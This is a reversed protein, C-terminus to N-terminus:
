ETERPSSDNSSDETEIESNGQVFRRLRDTHRYLDEITDLRITPIGSAGLKIFEPRRAWLKFLVTGYDEKEPTSYLVISVNRQTKRLDLCRTDVIGGLIAKIINLGDLENSTFEPGSTEEKEEKAQDAVADGEQKLASQLRDRIKDSIFQNFASFALGRFMNRAAGTVRGEYVQKMVFKVFDDSPKALEQALVRKIEATYRLERAADTILSSDFEDKTFRKLEKIDLENFELMNFEFFPRPDMVNSQDLDSFFRYQIGDTLIGVRTETVGFYRLLQSIVESSLDTGLRKCEILMVPMGDQLLAFDVKEGKKTGVDATFEPIVEAPNFIDYGLMQIFPLIFSTRTAEETVDKDKLHEVRETFRNSRTRVNDIFDM